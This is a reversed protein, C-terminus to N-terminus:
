KDITGRDALSARERILVQLGMDMVKIMDFPQFPPFPEKLLLDTLPYAGVVGPLFLQYYLSEVVLEVRDGPQKVLGDSIIRFNLTERFSVPLM